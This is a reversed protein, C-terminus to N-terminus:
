ITDRRGLYANTEIVTCIQDGLKQKLKLDSYMLLGFSYTEKSSIAPNLGLQTSFTTWLSSESSLAKWEKCVLALNTLESPTLNSFVQLQLEHLLINLTNQPQRYSAPNGISQSPIATSAM